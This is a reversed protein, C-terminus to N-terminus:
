RAQGMLKARMKMGIASLLTRLRVQRALEEVPLHTLVERILLEKQPVREYPWAREKAAIALDLVASFRPVYADMSYRESNAYAARGAAELADRDSALRAIVEAMADMDGVPVVFGNRGDVIVDRVGSSAATVVPVAGHAMAELMSVSTGEFESVQICVDHDRWVAAMGEPPVRGLFRVRGEMGHAGMAERLAGSEPGDGAIDLVFKVGRAALASVLHVLDMVRKQRQALRGGHVLRIPSVQWSKECRASRSVGCPLVTIDRVRAPIRAALSRACEPSVAVFTSILPEYWSLPDYYEEVSDAHCFGVIRIKPDMGVMYLSWHYNPVFVLPAARHLLDAAEEPSSSHLDFEGSQEGRYNLLLIRYRPHRSFARRLELAWSTVGSVINGTAIVVPIKGAM